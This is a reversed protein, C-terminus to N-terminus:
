DKDTFKKCLESTTEPKLKFKKSGSRQKNVVNLKKFKDLYRQKKLKTTSNTKEKKKKMTKTM